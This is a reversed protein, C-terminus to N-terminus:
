PSPKLFWGKAAPDTSFFKLMLDAIKVRGVDSPHTGDERYDERKYLLGDSKRGKEGDTWLYPGWLLVPAKGAAASLSEVGTIQDQIVWRVAFGSEYAYPEPNLDSTAYGAYSRSSIYALQLNPYRKKLLRAIEATDDKLQQAHKPFDGYQAVRAIANKVWVVQVQQPTAGAAKLRSDLTEWRGAGRDTKAVWNRSDVGGQAGDVLLVAPNKRADANALKIFQQSEGTTNSMGQTILVIRGKPSPKGEADLPQIKAAAALAAKLHAEPPQNRGGGYLGGDEGKYRDEATMDSLAVFGTSIKGAEAAAPAKTRKRTPKEGKRRAEKARDYIAQEEATLKEGKLAKQRIERVKSQDLAEEAAWTHLAGALALALPICWVKM